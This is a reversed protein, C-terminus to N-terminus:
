PARGRGLYFYVLSSNEMPFRCEKFDDSNETGVNPFDKRNFEDPLRLLRNDNNGYAAVALASALIDARKATLSRLTIQFKKERVEQGTKETKSSAM